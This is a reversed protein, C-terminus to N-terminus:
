LWRFPLGQLNGDLDHSVVALDQAEFIGHDIWQSAGDGETMRQPTRSRPDQGGEQVLQLYALVATRGDAISSTCRGGHYHVPDVADLRAHPVLTKSLSPRSIHTLHHVYLHFSRMACCAVWDISGRVGRSEWVTSYGVLHGM